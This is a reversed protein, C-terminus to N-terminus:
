ALFDLDGDGDEDLMGGFLEDQNSDRRNRRKRRLPRAPPLDDEFDLPKDDGVRRFDQDKERGPTEGTVRRYRGDRMIRGSVSSQINPPNTDLRQAMPPDDPDPPKQDGAHRAVAADFDLDAAVNNLNPRRPKSQAQYSASDDEKERLFGSFMGMAGGPLGRMWRVGFRLVVFTVLLALGGGVLLLACISLILATSENM